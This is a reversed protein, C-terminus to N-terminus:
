VAASIYIPPRLLPQSSLGQCLPLVGCADAIIVATNEIGEGMVFVGIRGRGTNHTFGAEEVTM